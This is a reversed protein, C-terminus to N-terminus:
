RPRDTGPPRERALGAVWNETVILTATSGSTADIQKAMLFRAGDPAIDYPTYNDVVGGYFDGSLRFLGRPAGLKPDPGPGVAVVTMMRAPTMYFLERGNRNWLPSCGGSVSIKRKSQDTAPFPRLYIEVAGSENSEYALWRGDPSVAFGGENFRSAVLARPTSDIGPRLGVIDTNGFPGVRALLWRRDPSWAGAGLEPEELLVSDPGSGDARRQRLAGGSVYTIARGDPTWRPRHSPVSDFTLRTLPGAPLQKLWIDSPALQSGALGIALSTGDPSLSWGVNFGFVIPRFSWATDVPTEQGSRDVWLARYEGSRKEGSQVVLTGEDSASFRPSVGGAVAIRNTVM